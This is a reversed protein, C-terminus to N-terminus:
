DQEGGQGAEDTSQQQRNRDPRDVEGDHVFARALAKEPRQQDSESGSSTFHKVTEEGESTKSGEELFAIHFRGHFQGAKNEHKIQADFEEHGFRDDLRRHIEPWSGFLDAALDFLSKMWM